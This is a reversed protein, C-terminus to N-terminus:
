TSIIIEIIVAHNFYHFEIYEIMRCEQSYLVSLVLVTSLESLAQLTVSFFCTIVKEQCSPFLYCMGAHLFAFLLHWRFYYYM